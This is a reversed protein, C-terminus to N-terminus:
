MENAVEMTSIIETAQEWCVHWNIKQKQWLNRKTVVKRASDNLPVEMVTKMANAEEVETAVEATSKMKTALALEEEMASKM